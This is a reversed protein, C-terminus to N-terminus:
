HEIIIEKADKNIQLNIDTIPFKFKDRWGRSIYFDLSFLLYGTCFIASSKDSWNISSYDQHLFTINKFINLNGYDPNESYFKHHHEIDGLALRTLELYNAVIDLSPNLYIDISNTTTLDVLGLEEPYIISNTPVITLNTDTSPTYGDINIGRYTFQVIFSYRAEEIGRGLDYPKYLVSAKIDAPSPSSDPNNSTYGPFISCTLGDNISIGGMFRYQSIPIYDLTTPDVVLQHIFLPHTTLYKLLGRSIFPVSPIVPNYQM